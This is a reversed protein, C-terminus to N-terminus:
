TRKRCGEGDGIGLMGDKLRPNNHSPNKCLWIGFLAQKLALGSTTSIYSNNKYVDVGKEPLYIIDYIDGKDIGSKFVSIFRDIKEKIPATNGNTAVEFGTRTAKAMKEGSIMSSVIHLRIAMPENSQIIKEADHSKEMLYLAGVYINMFFKKRIGAGNLVLQRKGASLSDPIHIDDISLTYATSTSALLLCTLFIIIKNMTKNM